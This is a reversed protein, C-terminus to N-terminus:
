AGVDADEVHARAVCVKLVGLSILCQKKTKFPHSYAWPNGDADVLEWRWRRGFGLLRRDHRVKFTMSTGWPDDELTTKM